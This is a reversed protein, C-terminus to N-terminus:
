KVKERQSTYEIKEKNKKSSKKKQRFQVIKVRTNDKVYDYCSGIIAGLALARKKKKKLAEV